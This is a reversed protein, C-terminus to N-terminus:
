LFQQESIPLPQAWPFGSVWGAGIGKIHSQLNPSQQVLISLLLSNWKDNFKLIFYNAL